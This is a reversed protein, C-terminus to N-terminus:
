EQPSQVPASRLQEREIMGEVLDPRAKAADSQRLMRVWDAEKEVPANM